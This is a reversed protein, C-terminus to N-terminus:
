DRRRGGSWSLGFCAMQLSLAFDAFRTSVCAGYAGRVIRPRYHAANGIPWGATASKSLCPPTTAARYAQSPSSNNSPRSRARPRSVPERVVVFMKVRVSEASTLMAHLNALAYFSLVNRPPTGEAFCGSECSDRRFFSTGGTSSLRIKSRFHTEKNMFTGLSSGCVGAQSVMQWVSTTSCKQAGLVYLLPLERGFCILIRRRRALTFGLGRNRQFWLARQQAVRRECLGGSM